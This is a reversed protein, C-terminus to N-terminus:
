KIEKLEALYKNGLEEFLLRDEEQVGNREMWELLGQLFRTRQSASM